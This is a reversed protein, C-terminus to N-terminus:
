DAYRQHRAVPVYGASLWAWSSGAAANKANTHSIGFERGLARYSWGDARLRRLRLVKKPTLKARGARSGRVQRQKAVMDANNDAHTGLWLHKPNVCNRVDCTHCVDLGDTIEGNFTAYSLRHARVSSGRMAAKGYGDRDTGLSWLWCGDVSVTCNMKIYSAADTVPQYRCAKSCFKATAAKRPAVEFSSGCSQCTKKPRLAAYRTAAAAAGCDSSCFKQKSSRQAYFPERCFACRQRRGTRPPAM